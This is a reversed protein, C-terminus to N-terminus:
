LRSAGERSRSGLPSFKGKEILGSFGTVGASMMFIKV